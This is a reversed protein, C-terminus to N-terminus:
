RKSYMIKGNCQLYCSVRKCYLMFASLFTEITKHSALYNPHDGDLELSGTPCESVLPTDVVTSAFCSEFWPYLILSHACHLIHGDRPSRQKAMCILAKRVVYVRLSDHNVGHIRLNSLAVAPAKKTLPMINTKSGACLPSSTKVDALTANSPSRTESLHAKPSVVACMKWKLM